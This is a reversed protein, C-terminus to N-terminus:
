CSSSDAQQFEPSTMSASHLSSGTTLSIPSVSLRTGLLGVPGQMTDVVDIKWPQQSFKMLNHFEQSKTTICIGERKKQKPSFIQTGRFNMHQLGLGGWPSFIQTGRLNRGKEETKSQINTDGQFEYTSARSRGM